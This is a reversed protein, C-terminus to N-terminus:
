RRPKDCLLSSLCPSSLIKGITNWFILHSKHILACLLISLFHVVNKVPDKHKFDTPFFCVLRISKLIARIIIAYMSVKMTNIYLPFMFLLWTWLRFLNQFAEPISLEMKGQCPYSPGLTHQIEKMWTSVACNCASNACLLRAACDSTLQVPNQYFTKLCSLYM